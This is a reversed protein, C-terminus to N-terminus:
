ARKRTKFNEIYQFESEYVREVEERLVVIAGGKKIAQIRGIRIRYYIAQPDCALLKCLHNVSYYGKEVDFLPEGNFESKERSYKLKLYDRLDKKHIYWKQGSRTAKLGRKKIAVFVGQRTIHLMQSAQTITLMEKLNEKKEIM